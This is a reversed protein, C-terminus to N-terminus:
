LLSSFHYLKTEKGDDHLTCKVNSHLPLRTIHFVIGCKAHKVDSLIQINCNNASLNSLHQFNRRHSHIFNRCKIRHEQTLGHSFVENLDARCCGAHQAVWVADQFGDLVFQTLCGNAMKCCSVLSSIFICIFGNKITYIQSLCLTPIFMYICLQRQLEFLLSSCCCAVFCLLSFDLWM